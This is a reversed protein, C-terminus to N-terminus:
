KKLKKSQGQICLERRNKDDGTMVVEKFVVRASDGEEVMNHFVESLELSTDVLM